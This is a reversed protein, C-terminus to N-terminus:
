LYVSDWYPYNRVSSVLKKRLPNAVIYRAINKRDDETRLARDYFGEQWIKGRSKRIHNLAKDSRGKLPGIVASLDTKSDLRVLGHFHDPMLVWALWTCQHHKENIKLQQCFMCALEFDYFHTSNAETKFTIFYEGQSQSYRGKNLDNCPM